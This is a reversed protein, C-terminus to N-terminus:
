NAKENARTELVLESASGIQNSLPQEVGHVLAKVNDGYGLVAKTSSNRVIDSIPASSDVSVRHEDGGYRVTLISQAM